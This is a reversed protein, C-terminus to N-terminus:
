LLHSDHSCHWLKLGAVSREALGVIAVRCSWSPRYASVVLYAVTLNSAIISLSKTVQLMPFPACISLCLPPFLCFCFRCAVRSPVATNAIGWMVSGWGMMRNRERSTAGQRQRTPSAPQPMCTSTPPVAIQLMLLM